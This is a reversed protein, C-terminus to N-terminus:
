LGYYDSGTRIDIGEKERLSFERERKETEIKRLVNIYRQSDDGDSETTPGIMEPSQINLRYAPRWSASGVEAGVSRHQGRACSITRPLGAKRPEWLCGAERHLRGQVKGGRRVGVGAPRYARPTSERRPDRAPRSHRGPGRFPFSRRDRCNLLIKQDGADDRDRLGRKRFLYADGELSRSGGRGNSVGRESRALM